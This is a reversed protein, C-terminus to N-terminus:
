FALGDTHRPDGHARAAADDVLSVCRRGAAQGRLVDRAAPVHFSPDVPRQGRGWALLARAVVPSVGRVRRTAFVALAPAGDPAPERPPPRQGEDWLRGRAARVRQLVFAAAREASEVSTPTMTMPTPGPIMTIEEVMDIDAVAFSVM